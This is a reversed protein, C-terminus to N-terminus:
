RLQHVVEVLPRQDAVNTAMNLTNENAGWEVITTSGAETLGM